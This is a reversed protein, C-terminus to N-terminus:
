DRANSNEGNERHEQNERNERNQGNQGNQGSEVIAEAPEPQLPSFLLLQPRRCPGSLPEKLMAKFEDGVAATDPRKHFVVKDGPVFQWPEEVASARADSTPTAALLTAIGRTQSWACPRKPTPRPAAVPPPEVTEPERAVPPDEPEPPPLEQPEPTPITEQQAPGSACGGLALLAIAALWLLPPSRTLMGTTHCGQTQFDWNLAVARQRLINQHKRQWSESCASKRRPPAYAAIGANFVLFHGAM